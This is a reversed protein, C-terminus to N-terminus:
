KKFPTRMTMLALTYPTWIDNAKLIIVDDNNLYHSTKIQKFVM